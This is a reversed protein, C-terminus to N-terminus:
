GERPQPSKIETLHALETSAEALMTELTAVKAQTTVAAPVGRADFAQLSVLGELIRLEPSRPPIRIVKGGLIIIGGGDSDVGGFSIAPGAVPLTRGSDISVTAENANDDIADVRVRFYNTFPNLPDPGRGWEEGETLARVLYSTNNELLHLLV